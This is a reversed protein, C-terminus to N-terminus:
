LLFLLYQDIILALIYTSFIFAKKINYNNDQIIPILLLFLWVYGFSIADYLNVGRILSYAITVAPFVLGFFLIKSSVHLKKDFYGFFLTIMLLLEKINLKDAPFLITYILLVSLLFKIISSRSIKLTM